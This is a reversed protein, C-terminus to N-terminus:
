QKKYFNEIRGLAKKPWCFIFDYMGNKDFPYLPTMYSVGFSNKLFLMMLFLIGSLILGSVGFIESLILTILRSIVIVYMYAPTIFACVASFAVTIVGISSVIGAEVATNGLIISGVIGVADGVTRPMRVGVERLIEFLLLIVVIEWFFSLPIDSRSDVIVGYIGEPLENGYHNIFTCLIAPSFIASIFAVLRLLRIFTAYYPTHLYDDTSQLGEIFVYPLTLVFPSGDVILAIRGSMLKAAAKDVKETSGCSPLLASKRGHLLMSLNASDTIVSAKLNSIQKKTREILNKDTRGDVYALIVKTQSVSGITYNKFKLAPSRIYKRLLAMNTEADEVFGSKPGRVTVDSEPEGINRGHTHQAGTLTKYFGNATEALILVEGCVIASAASVADKPPTILPSEIYHSFDGDFRKIDLRMMPRLISESIYDRSTIGKIFIVSFRAGVEGAERCILDDCDCLISFIEKSFEDYENTMM